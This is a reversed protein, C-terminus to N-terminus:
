RKQAEIFLWNLALIGIVFLLFMATGGILPGAIPGADVRLSSPDLVQVRKPLAPYALLAGIVGGFLFAYLVGSRDVDVAIKLRRDM